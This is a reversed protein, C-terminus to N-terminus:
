NVELAANFHHSRRRAVRQQFNSRGASHQDEHREDLRMAALSRILIRDAAMENYGIFKSLSLRAVRPARIAVPPLRTPDGVIVYIGGGDM